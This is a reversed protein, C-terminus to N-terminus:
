VLPKSEIIMSPEVGVLEVFANGKTNKEKMGKEKVEKLWKKRDESRDRQTKV